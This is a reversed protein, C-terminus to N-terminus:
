AFSIFRHAQANSNGNVVKTVTLVVSDTQESLGFCGKVLVPNALMSGLAVMAAAYTVFDYAEKIDETSGNTYETDVSKLLSFWLDPKNEESLYIMYKVDQTEM